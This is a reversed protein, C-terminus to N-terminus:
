EIAQLQNLANILYYYTKPAKEPLKAYGKGIGHPIYLLKYQDTSMLHVINHITEDIKKVNEKYEEDTYFADTNMSPAKKTSIGITNPEGRFEKAMGGLGWRADNDGFVFLTSPNAQIFKRTIFTM